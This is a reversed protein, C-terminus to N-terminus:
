RCDSKMRGTSIMEASNITFNLQYDYLAPNSNSITLPLRFKFENNYADNWPSRWKTADVTLYEFGLAYNGPNIESTANFILINLGPSISSTIQTTISKNQNSEVMVSKRLIYM